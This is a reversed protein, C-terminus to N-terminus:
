WCMCLPNRRFCVYHIRQFFLSTSMNPLSIHMISLNVQQSSYCIEQIFISQDSIVRRRLHRMPCLPPTSFRDRFVSFIAYSFCLFFALIV